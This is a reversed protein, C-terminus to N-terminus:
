GNWMRKKWEELNVNASRSFTTVVELAVVADKRVKTKSHYESEKLRKNTFIWM